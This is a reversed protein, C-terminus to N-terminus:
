GPLMLNFGLCKRTDLDLYLILREASPLTYVYLLYQDTTLIRHPALPAYTVPPLGEEDLAPNPLLLVYPYGYLSEYHLDLQRFTVFLTRQSDLSSVLAERSAAYAFSWINYEERLPRYEPPSPKEDDEDTDTGPEEDAVLKIPSEISIDWAPTLLLSIIDGALNVACRLDAVDDNNIDIDALVYCARENSARPELYYFSNLIRAHYLADPGTTELGHDRMFALLFSPVGSQTLFERQGPTLVSLTRLQPKDYVTWPYLVVPNEFFHEEPTFEAPALRIIEKQYNDLYPHAMTPLLFGGSIIVATMLLTILNSTAGRQRGRKKQRQVNRKQWEEGPANGWRESKRTENVM